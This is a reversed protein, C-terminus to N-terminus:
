DEENYDFAPHFMKLPPTQTPVNKAAKKRRYQFAKLYNMFCDITQQPSNKSM